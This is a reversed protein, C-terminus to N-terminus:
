TSYVNLVGLGINEHIDVVLLVKGGRYPMDIKDDM